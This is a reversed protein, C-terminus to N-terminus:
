AGATEEDGSIEELAEEAEPTAVEVVEPLEEVAEEAAEATADVATQLKEEIEEAVEEVSDGSPIDDETPAEPAADTMEELVEVSEAMAEEATEVADDVVETAAEAVEEAAEALEEAVVATAEDGEAVMEEAVEAAIEATEAAAEAVEDAADAVDLAQEAERALAAAEEEEEIRQAEEIERQAMWEIQENATVAKLSLGIRQRKQDVSVIRLLHTEGEGVVTRPDEVPSRSLQSVHLLGEIGPEIEAFAGYDLIRTIRGEVLDNTDYRETVTDWPNPLLKKRSLSIRGSEQDIGLVYVEIEDGIKVVERPHDIRHWSLESIHVLGDAGGLDVFAGFDRIGSVRGVRTEGESLVEMLEARKMEEWERYAERQSLVLRHRRRDVEIVKLGLTEGRLKALRQQRRRESMGSPIETLHSIPVFGRIRGYPVIVGGKNYGIVEGEFMEGSALLAEAEIWDQNLRALHISVILAEPDSTQVVYVPIEDNVQLAEREEPELKNLDSVPVMGDRKLGLDVIVGQPQIAVITGTRIDGEQPMDYDHQDLLDQLLSNNDESMSSQCKWSQDLPQPSARSVFFRGPSESGESGM